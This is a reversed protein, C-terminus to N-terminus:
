KSAGRNSIVIIDGEANAPTHVIWGTANDGATQAYTVAGTAPDCEVSYGVKADGTAVHYFDGQRAIAIPCGKFFANADGGAVDFASTLNRAVLGLLRGGAKKAGATGMLVMPSGEGTVDESVDFVFGGAVASGDSVYNIPTYIATGVAVEQGAVGLAPTTNVAKQLTM